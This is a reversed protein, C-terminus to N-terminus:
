KRVLDGIPTSGRATTLVAEYVEGGRVLHLALESLYLNAISLHGRMALADEAHELLGSALDQVESIVASAAQLRDILKLTEM